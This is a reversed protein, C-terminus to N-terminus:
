EDILCDWECIFTTTNEQFPADNWTGDSPITPKDKEYNFEAYDEDGGWSKGNDPLSWSGVKTWNEFTSGSDSWEWNGEEMEDSYGFYATGIQKERLKRFLFNNEALDNIVALHGRSERCFEAVQQYTEFGYNNADYFAYTHGNHTIFEDPLHPIDAISLRDPSSKGTSATESLTEDSLTEDSPTEDVPPMGTDAAPSPDGATRSNGPFLESVALAAFVVFLVATLIYLRKLVPDHYPHLTTGCFKCTKRGGPNEKGCKPCKMDAGRLQMVPANKFDNNQFQPKVSIM